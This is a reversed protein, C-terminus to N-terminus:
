AFGEEEEQGYGIDELEKDEDTEGFAGDRLL